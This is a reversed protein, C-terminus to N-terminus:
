LRCSINLNYPSATFDVLNSACLGKNTTIHLLRCLHLIESILKPLLLKYVIDMEICWNGVSYRLIVVLERSFEFLM